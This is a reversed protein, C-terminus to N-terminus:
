WARRLIEWAILNALALVGLVLLVEVLVLWSHRRRRQMGPADPQVRAAARPRLGGDYVDSNIRERLHTEPVERM